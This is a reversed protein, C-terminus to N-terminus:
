PVAASGSVGEPKGESKGDGGGDGTCSECDCPVLGAMPPSADKLPPIVIVRCTHSNWYPTGCDPCTFLEILTAEPQILRGHEDLLTM